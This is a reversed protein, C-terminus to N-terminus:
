WRRPEIGDISLSWAMDPLQQLGFKCHKHSGAARARAQGFKQM